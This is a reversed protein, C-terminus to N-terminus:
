LVRGIIVCWTHRAQQVVGKDTPAVAEGSRSLTAHFGGHEVDPGHAAWFCFISRRLEPILVNLSAIQESERSTQLATCYAM